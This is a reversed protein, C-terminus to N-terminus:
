ATDGIHVRRKVVINHVIRRERVIRGFFMADCSEVGIGGIKIDHNIEVGALTNGVGIVFSKHYSLNLDFVFDQWKDAM